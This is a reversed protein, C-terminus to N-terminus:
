TRPFSKWSLQQPLPLADEEDSEKYIVAYLTVVDQVILFIVMVPSWFDVWTTPLAMNETFAFVLLAAIGVTIVILRGNRRKRYNVTQASKSIGRFAGLREDRDRRRVILGILLVMSWVLSIGVCILNLLAWSGQAPSAEALPTTAEGIRGAALSSDGGAADDTTGFGFPSTGSTNQAETDPTGVVLTDVSALPLSAAGMNINFLGHSGANAGSGPSTDNAEFAVLMTLLFMIAVALAIFPIRFKLPIKLSGNM